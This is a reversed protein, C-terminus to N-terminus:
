DEPNAVWYDHIEKVLPFDLHGVDEVWVRVLPYEGSDRAAVAADFAEFATDFPEGNVGSFSPGSARFLKAPAERDINKFGAVVPAPGATANQEELMQEVNAEFRSPRSLADKIEDAWKPHSAEWFDLHETKRHDGVSSSRRWYDWIMGPIARAVFPTSSNYRRKFEQFAEAMERIKGESAFAGILALIPDSPSEGPIPKGTEKRTQANSAMTLFAEALRVQDALNM